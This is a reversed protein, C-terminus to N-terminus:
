DKNYCNIDMASSSVAMALFFLNKVKIKYCQRMQTKKDLVWRRRSKM